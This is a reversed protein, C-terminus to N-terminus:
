QLLHEAKWRDASFKTGGGAAKNLLKDGPEEQGCTLTDMPFVSDRM